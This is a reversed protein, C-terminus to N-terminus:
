TISEPNSNSLCRDKENALSSISMQYMYVFISISLKLISYAFNGKQHQLFCVFHHIQKILFKPVLLYTFSPM